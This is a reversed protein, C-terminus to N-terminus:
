RLKFASRVTIDSGTAADVLIRKITGKSKLLWSEFSPGDIVQPAITINITQGGGQVNRMPTIRLPSSGSSIFEPGGEGVLGVSRPGVIGGHQSTSAGGSGTSTGGSDPTASPGFLSGVGATVAGSVAEILFNILERVVREALFDAIAKQIDQLLSVFVDKVNKLNNQMLALFTGSFASQFANSVNHGLDSASKELPKTALKFGNVFNTAFSEGMREAVVTIKPLVTKLLGPLKNVLETFIPSAETNERWVAILDEFAASIEDTMGKAHVAASNFALKAQFDLHEIVKTLDLGLLRIVPNFQSAIDFFKQGARTILAQIQFDISVLQLEIVTGLRMFANIISSIMPNIGGMVVIVSKIVKLIFGGAVNFANLVNELFGPTKIIFILFDKKIDNIGALIENLIPATATALRQRFLNFQENTGEIAEQVDGSEQTLTRFFNIIPRVALVTVLLFFATRLRALRRFLIFLNNNLFRLPVLFRGISDRFTLVGKNATAFGTGTKATTTGLSAFAAKIRNVAGTVSDDLRIKIVIDKEAM